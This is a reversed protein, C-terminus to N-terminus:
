EVYPATSYVKNGDTDTSITVVVPNVFGAEPDVTGEYIEKTGDEYSFVLRYPIPNDDVHTWIAIEVIYNGDPYDENDPNNIFDGEFRDGSESTEFAESFDDNYLYLDLDNEDSGYPGQWDISYLLTGENTGTWSNHALLKMLVPESTMTYPDDVKGEEPQVLAIGTISISSFESIGSFPAETGFEEMTISGSATTAGAPITVFTKAINPNFEFATYFSQLLVEVKSDVEFTQPITINFNIDDLGFITTSQNTITLAGTLAIKDENDVYARTFTDDGCSFTGFCIVSLIIYTINKM